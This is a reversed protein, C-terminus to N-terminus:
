GVPGEVSAGTGDSFAGRGHACRGRRRAVHLPERQQEGVPLDDGVEGEGVQHQPQGRRVAVAVPCARLHPGRGARRREDVVDDPGEEAGAAPREDVRRSVSPRIARSPSGSHRSATGTRTSAIGTRRPSRSCRRRRGCCWGAPRGCASGAPAPRGGSRWRATASSRRPPTGTGPGASPGRRSGARPRRSRGPRRRPAPDGVGAGVRERDEPLSPSVLSRAPGVQDLRSGRAPAVTSAARRPSRDARDEARPLGRSVSSSPGPAVTIRRAGDRQAGGALVDAPQDQQAVDGLQATAVALQDGLVGRDALDVVPHLVVQLRHRRQQAELGPPM